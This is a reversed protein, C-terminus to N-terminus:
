KFQHCIEILKSINNMILQVKKLTKLTILALNDLTSKLFGLSFWICRVRARIARRILIKLGRLHLERCLRMRLEGAGISIRTCIVKIIMLEQQRGM